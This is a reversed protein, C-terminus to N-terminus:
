GPAGAGGGVGGELGPGERWGGGWQTKGSPRSGLHGTTRWSKKLGCDDSCPLICLPQSPLIPAESAGMGMLHRPANWSSTGDVKCESDVESWTGATSTRFLHAWRYTYLGPSALAAPLLVLLGRPHAPRVSGHRVM